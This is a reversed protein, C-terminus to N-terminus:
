APPTGTPPTGTPPTGTPPTGPPPTGIPTAPGTTAPARMLALVAGVLALISGIAAVWLGIGPSAEIGEVGGTLDDIQTIDIFAAYAGFFGVILITLGAIVKRPMEGKVMWMAVAALIATVGAIYFPSAEEADSASFSEEAGGGELTVFTLFIIGALILVGGILLAIEAKRDETM